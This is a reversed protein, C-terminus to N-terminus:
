VDRIVSNLYSLDLKRMILSDGNDEFGGQKLVEVFENHKTLKGLMNGKKITRYKEEGM